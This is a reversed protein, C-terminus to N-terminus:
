NLDLAGIHHQLPRRRIFVWSPLAGSWTPLRMLTLLPLPLLLTLTTMQLVYIAQISTISGKRASTVKGCLGSMPWHRSIAWQSAHPGDSLYKLAQRSLGSFTTSLCCCTRWGHGLHEAMTLGALGVRLRAGPENMQGFVLATKDIVGSQTM